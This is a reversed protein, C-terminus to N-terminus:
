VRLEDTDLAMRKILQLGALCDGLARHNGNPLKPYRYSKHYHSWNSYWEAAILMLCKLNFKLKPLNHLKCCYDLISMDFGANYILVQNTSCVELIQPYIEPFTPATSVMDDTIGHISAAKAPITLTPKVLTNLLPEGTNSIIAIEVIEANFLGTTETDLIVWNDLTLQKRAWRVNRVRDLEIFGELQLLSDSM